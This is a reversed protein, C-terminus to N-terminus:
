DQNKMYRVCCEWGKKFYYLGSYALLFGDLSDYELFTKKLDAPLTNMLEECLDSYRKYKDEFEKDQFAEKDFGHVEEGYKKMIIDKM